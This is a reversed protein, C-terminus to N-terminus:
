KTHKSVSCIGDWKQGDEQQKDQMQNQRNHIWVNHMQHKNLIVDKQSPTSTKQDIWVDHM